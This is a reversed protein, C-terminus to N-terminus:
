ETSFEPMLHRSGIGGVIIADAGSGHLLNVPGQCGGHIHSPNPVVSVNRIAGEEVHVLTFVDGHGFHGSRLSELGGDGSSPVAVIKHLQMFNERKDKPILELRKWPVNFM